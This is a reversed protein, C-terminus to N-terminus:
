RIAQLYIETKGSGTVGLLLNVCFGGAGVRPAIADYARQQEANLVKPTESAEASERPISLTSLDVEATITILGLRALKRITIPTAGSQGALRPLDIAEGEQM